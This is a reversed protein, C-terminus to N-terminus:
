RGGHSPADGKSAPPDGARPMLDAGSGGASDADIDEPAGGRGAGSGSGTAEGNPKAGAPEGRNDRGGVDQTM